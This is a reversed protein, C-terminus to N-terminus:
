FRFYLFPNYSDSCLQSISVVFLLVYVFVTMIRIIRTKNIKNVIPISFLIGSVLFIMYNKIYFIFENDIINSNVFIKPIYKYLLTLDDCFFILWGILILFLAYVHKFFGPLKDIIKGVFLKELILIIGFYVGWIVFNWSAGHWIGTLIWVIMINILWRYKKVRNGGLPIYVYDRFWSSLTIHWRRWFDTISTAIYPYNFNKPYNFGLMKGMGIAMTSYGNFDFYIQLAFSIIGLWATFLSINSIDKVILSHLYGVNNAILVKEFLGTLFLFLGQVFSDFDIKRSKLEKVVDEYRVIPGAVLQPFMSVYTLFNFFNKEAPVKDKYLDIIYSMTQFIYFSIGLPLAIDLTKVHLGLGNINDIIFNTYKFFILFLLNSVVCFVMIIKKIKNNNKYKDIIIGCIYDLLTIIILLIIYKPEGWAYFILSFILLVINKLKFPVLYYILLFLPFFVFIFNLSSFLMNFGVGIM